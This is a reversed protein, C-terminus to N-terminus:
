DENVFLASCMYSEKCVVLAHQPTDCLTATTYHAATHQFLGVLMPSKAFSWPTNCHPITPKVTNYQTSLARGVYPEKCFFGLWKPRRCSSAMGHSGAVCYSGMHAVRHWGMHAQLVIVDWILRCCLAMGHSGAVCYSGMHAVCHWGM